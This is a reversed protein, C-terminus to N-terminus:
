KGIVIMETNTKGNATTKIYYNGQKINQFPYDITQNGSGMEGNFISQIKNGNVDYLDIIVNSKDKLNMQIKASQDAPNPFVKLDLNGQSNQINRGRGQGQGTSDCTGGNHKRSHGTSDCTGGNRKRGHGQGTSDCTGNCNMGNHKKGHKGQGKNSCNQGQNDNIGDGNTDVFNDCVGDGNADIMRAHRGQGKGQEMGKNTCNQGQNDNIGDGNADVFNDCVGDGNADVTRTTNCNKTATKGQANTQEGSGILLAIALFATGALVASKKM